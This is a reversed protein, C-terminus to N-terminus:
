SGDCSYQLAIIAEDHVQNSHSCRTAHRVNFAAEQRYEINITKESLINELHSYSEDVLAVKELTEILTTTIEYGNVFFTYKPDDM